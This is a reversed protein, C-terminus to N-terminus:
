HNGIMIEYSRLLCTAALYEGRLSSDFDDVVALMDRVCAGHFALGMEEAGGSTKEKHKASFAIIAKFLVPNDLSRASVVRGFHRDEDCLDYWPALVETYHRFLTSIDLDM